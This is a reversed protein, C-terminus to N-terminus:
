EEEQAEAEELEQLEEDALDEENEAIEEEVVPTEEVLGLATKLLTELEENGHFDMGLEEAKEYLAKNVYTNMVSIYPHSKENEDGHEKQFAELTEPTSANNKIRFWGFNTSHVWESVQGEELALAAHLFDLDLNNTNNDVLGLIGGNPASSPDDSFEKAIEAFDKGEAIAADVADMKEQEQTTPDQTPDEAKILLYSVARINLEDFHKNIYQETIEREKVNNLAWEELANKSTYGMAAVQTKLVDKYNGPYQSAFQQEVMSAQKKADEKLEETTEIAQSAVEKRFLPVISTQGVKYLEDYFADADVNEDAIAYVVPKGGVKKGKLVDKNSEKVYYGIMCVFAIAIITVFKNEKLFKTM